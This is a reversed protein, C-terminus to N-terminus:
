VHGLVCFILDRSQQCLNASPETEQSFHKINNKDYSKDKSNDKRRDTQKLCLFPNETDQGEQELDPVKTQPCSQSCTPNHSQTLSGGQHELHQLNELQSSM